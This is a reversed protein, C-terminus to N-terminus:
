NKSECIVSAEDCLDLTDRLGQIRGIINQYAAYDAAAQGTSLNEKLHDIQSQVLKRLEHEFRTSITQM